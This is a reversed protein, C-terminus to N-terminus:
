NLCASVDAKLNLVTVFREVLVEPDAFDVSAHSGGGAAALLANGSPHGSADIVHVTLRIRHGAPNTLTDFGEDDDYDFGSLACHGPCTQGLAGCRYEPCDADEDCSREGPVAPDAPPGACLRTPLPPRVPPLCIGESCRAGSLCDDPGDCGLGFQFRKAQVRPNFFSDPDDEETEAGDSFLVVLNPRCAVLPDRCAGQECRYDPSGCDADEGCPMGEKVVYHRFYEGAYFLSRGLPTQGVARLEPGTREYCVGDPWFCFGPACQGHGGGQQSCERETAEADGEFDTWRVIEDTDTEGHPGHPVAMFQPLREALFDAELSHADGPGLMETHGRYWGGGGCSPHTILIPLLGDTQPFRQLAIRHVQAPESRVLGQLAVKARGLRTQPAQPDDCAPFEWAPCADGVCDAPDTGDAILANMSGSTDVLLVVNARAPEGEGEGEGGEVPPPEGEGEGEGGEVPPPEREGEGGQGDGTGDEGEGEGQSPHCEGDASRTGEPCPPEGEGQRVFPDAEGEGGGPAEDGGDAGDQGAGPASSRESSDCGAALGFALGVILLSSRM